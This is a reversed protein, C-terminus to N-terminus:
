YFLLNIVYNISPNLLDYYFYNYGLLGKKSFWNSENNLYILYFSLWFPNDNSSKKLKNSESWLPNM